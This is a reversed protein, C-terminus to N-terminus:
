IMGSRTLDVIPLAGIAPDASAAEEFRGVADRVEAVIATRDLHAFEGREYIIQGAVM